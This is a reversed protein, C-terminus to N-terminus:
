ICDHEGELCTPCEEEEIFSPYLYRHGGIEKEFLLPGPPFQISSTTAAATSSTSTVTGSQTNGLEVVVASPAVQDTPPHTEGNGFAFQKIKPILIILGSNFSASLQGHYFFYQVAAIVDAGVIEWCSIYFHGNFGDPGPASDIDMSKVATWIEEDSPILILTSNEAETVLSPIISSVLGNDLYDTHHAFLDAYYDIIHSQILLPDDIVEDNNQLLTISSRHRRARCMAHFYQTNRDGDSLWRLRAKEKWLIEQLRLSDNLNAQLETEKAFKEDSGGSAVIDNQIEALADLDLKVRHHVDGFVEWNWSRLAKRLVRLKHQLVTLPCGHASISCWCDKVFSLFDKHELWMKRFRFLSHHDGYAKSFSILLPHHDSCIRPLTCCDFNDWADLWELNVLSRDLRLEVNGRLGNRRVWTFEAGKTDVHVLECVDSMAQFEECSHRCVPAGGKKEHAGLVANFDGVVLWPGTVFHGKFETIDEWLCRRGAVSTSAYVVTLFCNVSDFMVQLSVQQDSSALVRVWPALSLKCFIWLNPLALARDNTGVLRMGLSRWFSSSISGVAVFPEAICLIEPSHTRIFESLANQTPHNGIGRLNWYLIKM